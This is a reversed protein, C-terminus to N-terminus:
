KLRFIVVKGHELLSSTKEASYGLKLPSILEKEVEYYSHVEMSFGLNDFFEEVHEMNDFAYNNYSKNTKSIMNQNFYPMNKNQNNLFSKRTIDSTIWLGGAKELVHRINKAVLAKEDFNLYRLLGENVITISKKVDFFSIAKYFDEPRLANGSLLKLNVNNIKLSNLINKKLEQLPPLDMEVYKVKPNKTYTIGRSSLGSALELIQTSDTADLIKNILKYRAEIEPALKKVILEEPIPNHKSIEQFIESSYEIDTFIKPYATLTATPIIDIYNNDDINNM